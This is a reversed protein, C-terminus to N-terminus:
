EVMAEWHIMTIGISVAALAVRRTSFLVIAEGAMVLIFHRILM